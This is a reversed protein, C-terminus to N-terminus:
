YDGNYCPASDIAKTLSDELLRVGGRLPLCQAQADQASRHRRGTWELPSIPLIKM